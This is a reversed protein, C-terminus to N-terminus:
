VRCSGFLEEEPFALIQNAKGQKFVRYRQQEEETGEGTQYRKVMDRFLDDFIKKPPWYGRRNCGVQVEFYFRGKPAVPVEPPGASTDILLRDPHRSPIRTVLEIAELIGPGPFATLLHLENRDVPDGEALDAFARGFLRAMLASAIINRYGLYAFVQPWGFEVVM